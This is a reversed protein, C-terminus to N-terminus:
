ILLPSIFIESSQHFRDIFRGSWPYYIDNNLKYGIVGIFYLRDEISPEGNLSGNIWDEQNRLKYLESQSDQLASKIIEKMKDKAIFNSKGDHILDIINKAFLDIKPWNIGFESKIQNWKSNKLIEISNLLVQKSIQGSCNKSKDCIFLLDRPGNILNPFVLAAFKKQNIEFVDDWGIKM